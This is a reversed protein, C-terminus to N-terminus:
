AVIAAPRVTNPVSFTPNQARREVVQCRCLDGRAKRTRGLTARREQALRGLRPMGVRLRRVALEEEVTVADRTVFPRREAPERARRRLM